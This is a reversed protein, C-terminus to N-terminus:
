RIIHLFIFLYIWLLDVFHWYTSLMEISNLTEKEANKFVRILLFLLGGVIHVIHLGVIVLFFSASPNSMNGVLAIHNLGLEKFGLIQLVIFVVGLLFTATVLTKYKSLQQEKFAKYALYMTLSSTLIVVTSITFLMPFDFELFNGQNKKVIYASTLAAFMMCISGIAVWLTFKLPNMKGSNETTITDM